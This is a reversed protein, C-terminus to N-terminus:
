SFLGIRLNITFYRCPNLSNKKEDRGLVRFHDHEISPLAGRHYRAISGIIFRTKNDFQLIPSDLIIKLGAKHHNKPGETHVGIDHLLGACLLYYKEKQGFQHLDKLDDFIKWALVTIHKTHRSDSNCSEALKLVYKINAQEDEDLKNIFEKNKL